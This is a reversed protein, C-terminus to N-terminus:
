ATPSSCESAGGSLLKQAELEAAKRREQLRELDVVNMQISTSVNIEQAKDAYKSPRIKSAAWTLGKILERACAASDKDVASRGADVVEDAFVDAQHERAIVYQGRFEDDEQLWRQVTTLSPYADDRCIARLTEGEAILACIEECLEPTKITPRGGPHKGNGNSGNLESV